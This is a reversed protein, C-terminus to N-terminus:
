RRRKVTSTAVGYKIWEILDVSIIQEKVGDKTTGIFSRVGWDTCNEVVVIETRRPLSYTSHNLWNIQLTDGPVVAKLCSKIVAIKEEKNM